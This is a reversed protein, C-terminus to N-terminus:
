PKVDGDSTCCGIIAKFHKASGDSYQVWIDAKAPGLGRDWDIAVVNIRTVRPPPEKFVRRLWRIM